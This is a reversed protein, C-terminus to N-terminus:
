NLIKQLAVVGDALLETQAKVYALDRYVDHERFYDWNSHPFSFLGPAFDGGHATDFGYWWLETREQPDGYVRGGCYTIGGHVELVNSPRMEIKGAMLGIMVGFAPAPADKDDPDPLSGQMMKDYAEQLIPLEKDHDVKYLPHGIEIGVYGNLSWFPGRVILCAHGCYTWDLTDQETTWPGVRLMSKRIPTKESM